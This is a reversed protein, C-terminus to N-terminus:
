LSFIFEDYAVDLEELKKVLVNYGALMGDKRNEHRNEEELLAGYIPEIKALADRDPTRRNSHFGVVNNDGDFSPTVHAFVWYYDGNKAINKVYAFIERLDEIIVTSAGAAEAKGRVPELEEGPHVRALGQLLIHYRGDDLEEHHVIRGVGGVPAGM